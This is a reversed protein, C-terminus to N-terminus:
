RFRILYKVLGRFDGQVGIDGILVVHDNVKYRATATQEGTRPDTNGFEVDLRNFFSEGKEPENGKKFIKRYLQKFLLM